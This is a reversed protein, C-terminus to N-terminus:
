NGGALKAIETAAKDLAAKPDERGFIVSASYADRFTQWIKVSNPVNPVEVTRAAQDAFAQYTPNKTFYDPYATALDNRLPMQGTAELLKGDQETSTAFKMLDWATGRNTCSSYM